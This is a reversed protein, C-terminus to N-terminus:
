RDVVETRRAVVLCSLSQMTQIAALFWTSLTGAPVTAISIGSKVSEVVHYVTAWSSSVPVV